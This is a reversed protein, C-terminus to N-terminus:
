GDRDGVEAELAEVLRQAEKMTKDGLWETPTVWGSNDWVAGDYGRERVHDDPLCARLIPIITPCPYKKRDDTCRLVGSEHLFPSHVEILDAVAAVLRTHDINKGFETSIEALLTRTNFRRGSGAVGIKRPRSM